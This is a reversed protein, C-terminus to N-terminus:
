GVPELMQEQAITAAFYGGTNNVVTTPLDPFLPWLNSELKTIIAGYSKLFSLLPAPVTLPNREAITLLADEATTLQNGFQNKIDTIRIRLLATSYYDLVEPTLHRATTPEISQIERHMCRSVEILASAAPTFTVRPNVERTSQNVAFLTQDKLNETSPTLSTRCCGAKESRRLLRLSTSTTQENPGKTRPPRSGKPKAQNEPRGYYPRPHATQPNGKSFEDTHIASISRHHNTFQSGDGEVVGEHPLESIKKWDGIQNSIFGLEIFPKFNIIEGNMEDKFKGLVKKNKVSFYPHDQPYDSTDMYDIM